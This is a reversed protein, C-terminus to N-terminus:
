KTLCASAPRCKTRPRRRADRRDFRHLNRAPPVTTGSLDDLVSGDPSAGVATSARM